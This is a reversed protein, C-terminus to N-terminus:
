VENKVLQKLQNIDNETLEDQYLHQILWLGSERIKELPSSNGLWEKRAHCEKCKSITSILKKELELRQLKGKVPFVTFSFNKQMYESVQKEIEEKKAKDIKSEWLERAKKTTLDIEWQELFPDGAKNLIARGINKRFISRDKNRALFHQKLRSRLQNQGTHTGIRVIRDVDHAKEGKEFLVYLGNKPIEQENFSFDFRKMNNFLNHIECCKESM